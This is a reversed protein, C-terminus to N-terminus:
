DSQYSLTASYKFMRHADHVFLLISLTMFPNIMQSVTSVGRYGKCLHQPAQIDKTRAGYKLKKVLPIAPIVSHM